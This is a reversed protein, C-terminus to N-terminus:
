FSGNPSPRFVGPSIACGGGNGLFPRLLLRARLRVSVFVALGLAVDIRHCPTLTAVRADHVTSDGTISVPWAAHM